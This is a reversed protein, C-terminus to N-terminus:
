RGRRSLHRKQAEIRRDLRRILSIKQFFYKPFYWDFLKWFRLHFITQPFFHPLPAAIQVYNGPNGEVKYRTM